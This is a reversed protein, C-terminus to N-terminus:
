RGKGSMGPSCREIAVLQMCPISDCHGQCCTSHSGLLGVDELSATAVELQELCELFTREGEREM